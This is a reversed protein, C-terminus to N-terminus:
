ACGGWPSWGRAQFLRYAVQTQTGANSDRPDDGPGGYDKWTQETMQWLGLNIENPSAAKPNLGSECDAVRIAREDDGGWNNRIANMVSDRTGGGGGSSPSPVPTPTPKPTPTPTPKPTSKPTPKPTAKPTPAATPALTPTPMPTPDPTPAVVWSATFVVETPVAAGAPEAVLTSAEEVTAGDTTARATVAVVCCILCLTFFM